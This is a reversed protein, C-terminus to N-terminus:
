NALSDHDNDDDDQNPAHTDRTGPTQALTQCWAM